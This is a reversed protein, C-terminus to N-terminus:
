NLGFYFINIKIKNGKKRHHTLGNNIIVEYVDKVTWRIDSIM